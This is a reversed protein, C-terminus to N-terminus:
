PTRQKQGLLRSIESRLIAKAVDAAEVHYVGQAIENRIRNLKRVRLDDGQKALARVQQLRQAAPSHAIRVTEGECAGKESDPDDQMFAIASTEEIPQSLMDKCPRKDAIQM